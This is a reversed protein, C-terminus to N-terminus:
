KYVDKRTEWEKEVSASLKGNLALEANHFIWKLLFNQTHKKGFKEQTKSSVLVVDTAEEICDFLGLQKLNKGLNKSDNDFLNSYLQEKYIEDVVSMAKVTDFIERVTRKQPHFEHEKKNFSKEYRKLNALSLKGGSNTYKNFEFHKQLFERQSLKESKRQRFLIEPLNKSIFDIQANERIDDFIRKTM